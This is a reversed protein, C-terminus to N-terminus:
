AGTISALARIAAPWSIDFHAALASLAIASFFAALYIVIERTIEGPGHMFREDGKM